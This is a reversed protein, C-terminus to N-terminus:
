RRATHSDIKGDLVCNRSCVQERFLELSTRNVNTIQSFHLRATFPRGPQNLSHLDKNVTAYNGAPHGTPLISRKWKHETQQFPKWNQPLERGAKDAHAWARLMEM